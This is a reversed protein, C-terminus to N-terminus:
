YLNREEMNITEETPMYEYGPGSKSKEIWTGDILQVMEETPESETGEILMESEPPVEELPEVPESESESEAVSSSAIDLDTSEPTYLVRRDKQITSVINTFPNGHWEVGGGYSIDSDITIYGYLLDLAMQPEAKLYRKTTGKFSKGVKQQALVTNRLRYICRIMEEDSMDPSLNNIFLSPQTGCNVNVSFMAASVAINREDLNFGASNLKEKFGTWYRNTMFELQDTIATEYDIKMADLFANGITENRKLEPNGNEFNLYDSFAPWLEPHKGYAFKMFSALDYRYDFQCIGYASGKDGNKVAAMNSMGSTEGAICLMYLEAPYGAINLGSLQGPETNPDKNWEFDNDDYGYIQPEKMYVGDENVYYGDPTREDAYMRGDEGFYFWYSNGDESLIEKWGVTYIGEELYYWVEDDIIWGEESAGDTGFYYWKDSAEDFYWGTKMYGDEDFYYLDNRIVAFSNTVPRNDMYYKTGIEDVKFGTYIEVKNNKINSPTSVNKDEQIANSSSATIIETDAKLTDQIEASSLITTGLIIILLITISSKKKIIDKYDM